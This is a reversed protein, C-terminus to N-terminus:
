PIVSKKGCCYMEQGKKPTPQIPSEAAGILVVEYPAGNLPAKKGPLHFFKDKMLMSEVCKTIRMVTTEHVGYDQAIHFCTRYGRLYEMATLLRDEISFKSAEGGNKRRPAAATLIEVAKAFTKRKL